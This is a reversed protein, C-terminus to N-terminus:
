SSALPSLSPAPSTSLSPAPHRATVMVTPLWPGSWWMRWGLSHRQVDVLGREELRRRYRGTHWLDAILVRGGPRLVRVAEDIAKDLRAPGGCVNHMAASSVVVDFSGDPFPLDTMDATRVEVRDAVGEAVANRRTAEAGNGSQDQGRWIDIGVAQGTTLHRAATMLVAGRGCGLDLVQEDGSLTSLQEDWVAFKGRQSSHIGFGICILILGAGVVPWISDTLVAQTVEGGILACPLVLWLPADIGYSGQRNMSM